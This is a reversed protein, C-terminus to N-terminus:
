HCSSLNFAKKNIEDKRVSCHRRVAHTRAGYCETIRVVADGNDDFFLLIILLFMHQVDYFYTHFINLSIKTSAWTYLTQRATMDRFKYIYIHIVRWWDTASHFHVSKPIATVGAYSYLSIKNTINLILKSILNQYSLTVSLSWEDDFVCNNRNM